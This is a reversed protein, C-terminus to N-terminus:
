TYFRSIEVDSVVSQRRWATLRRWQHCWPWATRVTRQDASTPFSIIQGRFISRWKPLVHATLQLTVMARASKRHSGLWRGSMILYAPGCRHYGFINQSCNDSSNRLWYVAATINDIFWSFVNNTTSTTLTMVFRWHWTTTFNWWRNLEATRTVHGNSEWPAM